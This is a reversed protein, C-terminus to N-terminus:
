TGWPAEFDLSCNGLLTLTVNCRKFICNWRHTEPNPRKRAGDSLWSTQRVHRPRLCASTTKASSDHVWQPFVIMVINLDLHRSVPPTEEATGRDPRSACLAVDTLVCPSRLIVTPTQESPSDGSLDEMHQAARVTLGYQIHLEM